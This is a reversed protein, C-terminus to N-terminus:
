CDSVLGLLLAWFGLGGAVATAPPNQNPYPLVTGSVM